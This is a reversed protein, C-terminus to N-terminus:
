PIWQPAYGGVILQSSLGTLPDILWIEPPETMAAQNFRVAALQMGDPRWAFDYHNYLPDNTLPQAEPNELLRIWLQRGPTWRKADLYKRAFALTTGDPSFAPTTDEVDQGPTLDQSTQDGLNFHILHSEALRELGTIAESIDLFSIEPAIFSGGDPHWTGPQGTQNSFTIQKGDGPNLFIFAAAETDYFALVGDSSWAPQLTQHPPEGALVPATEPIPASIQGEAGRLPAYWVQPYDPQGTAPSATREYALYDEEPSVAPVRCQAQPCPLILLPKLAQAEGEPTAPPQNQTLDLRYIASGGQEDRSSYYIATGSANLKFDLVGVPSTTLRTIEGSQPDITYIDAPGDPPFLYALRPSRITFAWTHSQQIRLPLLGTAQSGGELQVQVKSGAQWPRSPTFVLTNGEWNYTGKSAPTLRLRETVSAAQMARSFTLRLATGAPINFSGEAPAVAILRPTGWWYAFTAGFAVIMVALLGIHLKNRM